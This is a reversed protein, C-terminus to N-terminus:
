DAAGISARVAIHLQQLADRLAIKDDANVRVDHDFAEDLSVFRWYAERIEPTGFLEVRGKINQIVLEGNVTRTGDGDTLWDLYQLNHQVLESLDVSLRTRETRMETQRATERVLEAAHVAAERAYRAAQRNTLYPAGFTGILTAALGAVAIVATTDV